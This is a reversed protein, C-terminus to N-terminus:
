GNKETSQSKVLDRKLLDLFPLAHPIDQPAKRCFSLERAICDQYNKYHIRKILAGLLTAPFSVCAIAGGWFFIRNISTLIKKNTM